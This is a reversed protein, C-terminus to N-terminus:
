MSTEFLASVPLVSNLSKGIPSRGGMSSFVDNRGIKIEIKIPVPNNSSSIFNLRVQIQFNQNKNAANKASVIAQLAKKGFTIAKIKATTNLRQFVNLGFTKTCLM